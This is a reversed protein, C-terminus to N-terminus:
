LFTYFISSDIERSTLIRTISITIRRGPDFFWAIFVCFTVLFFHWRISTAPQRLKEEGKRRMEEFSTNVCNYLTEFSKFTESNLRQM